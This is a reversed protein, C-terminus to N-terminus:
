DMEITKMLRNFEDSKMNVEANVKLTTNGNLMWIDLDNLQIDVKYGTKQKIMKAIVKAAVCKMFKTSLKFKMEDMM